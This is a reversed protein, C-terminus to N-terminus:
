LSEYVHTLSTSEFHPSYLATSFFRSSSSIARLLGMQDRKTRRVILAGKLHSDHFGFGTYNDCGIMVDRPVM